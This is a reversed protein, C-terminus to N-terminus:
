LIDEYRPSCTDTESGLTKTPLSIKILEKTGHRINKSELKFNNISTNSKNASRDTTPINTINAETNYSNLDLVPVVTELNKKGHIEHLNELKRKKVPSYIEKLSNKIENMKRDKPNKSESFFENETKNENNLKIKSKADQIIKSNRLKDGFFLEEKPKNERYEELQALQKQKSLNYRIVDPESTHHKVEVEAVKNINEIFNDEIDLKHNNAERIVITYYIFMTLVLLSVIFNFGFFTLLWNITLNYKITKEVIASNILYISLPIAAVYSAIITISFTTFIFGFFTSKSQSQEEIEEELNKKPSRNKIFKLIIDISFVALYFVFSSIIAIPWLFTYYTLFSLFQHKYDNSILYRYKYLIFIGLCSKLITLFVYLFKLRQYKNINENNFMNTSLVSTQNSVMSKTIEKKRFDSNSDEM